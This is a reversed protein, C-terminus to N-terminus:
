IKKKNKKIKIKKELKVFYQTLGFDKCCQIRYIRMFLDHNICHTSQIEIYYSFKVFFNSPFSNWAVNHVMHHVLNLTKLIHGRIMDDAIDKYFPKQCREDKWFKEERYNEDYFWNHFKRECVLM